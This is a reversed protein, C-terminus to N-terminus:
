IALAYPTRLSIDSLIENMDANRELALTQLIRMLSLSPALIGEM